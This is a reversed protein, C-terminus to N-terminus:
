RGRLKRTGAQDVALTKPDVVVGYDAAANQASVLGDRVDAVVREITRRRPDGYGGGGSEHIEFVDGADLDYFSEADVEIVKDGKYLRLRHPPAPRGGELGFPATV